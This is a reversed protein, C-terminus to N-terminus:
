WPRVAKTLMGTATAAPELRVVKEKHKGMSKGMVVNRSDLIPHKMGGGTTGGRGAGRAENRWVMGWGEHGECGAGAGGERPRNELTLDQNPCVTM